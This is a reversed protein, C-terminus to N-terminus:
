TYVQRDLALQGRMILAVLVGLVFGGVHAWVAVGGVQAAGEGLAAIGNLFQLLFWFGLLIVASIEVTAFFLVPVLVQVRQRPFFVLYAGLVGAIAGSAGVSPLTDNPGSLALQVLSAAVGAGLYFLLYGVHGLVDEIDDGFICLYIMNAILHLWGGHMFMSTLLQLWLPNPGAPPIDQGTLIERPVVGYIRIFHEAGSGLSVEYLFVSVNLLLLCITVIPLSRVRRPGDSLPIM